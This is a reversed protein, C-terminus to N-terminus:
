GHWVHCKCCFIIFVSSLCRPSSWDAGILRLLFHGSGVLWPSEDVRKTTLCKYEGDERTSVSVLRSRSHTYFYM